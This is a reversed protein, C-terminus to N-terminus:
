RQLGLTLGGMIEGTDTRVQKVTAHRKAGPLQGRIGITELIMANPGLEYPWNLPIPSPSRFSVGPPRDDKLMITISRDPDPNRVYFRFESRTSDVVIVNHVSTNNDNPTNADVRGSMEAHSSRPDEACQAMALLCYDDPQGLSPNPPIFDFDVIAAAGGIEAVGPSGPSRVRVTKTGLTTWQDSPFPPMVTGTFCWYLEVDVSLAAIVGRNHVRVFVRNEGGAAPREDTLEEFKSLSLGKPRPVHILPPADVKVDVSEWYPTFVRRNEFLTSSPQETNGWDYVNDRMFVDVGQAAVRVAEFANVRGYGHTAALSFGNVLDYEASLPEIKDATNQLLYQVQERTLNPNVSLILGAVGATTACAASTGSFCSTYYSGAESEVCSDDHQDDDDAYTTVISRTGTGRATPALVEMCDGFGAKSSQDQDTSGSVAIVHELSSIDSSNDVKDNTMAFVIVCGRNPDPGYTPRGEEAAEQIAKKVDVPAIIGRAYGWSCCIVDAGMTQAYNFALHQEYNTLNCRLLMLECHPCSGKVDFAGNAGVCGAVATGHWRPPNDTRGFHNTGEGNWLNGKLDRHEHHVPTDIVAIVVGNGEAITWAEQADVDADNNENNLHWQPPLALARFEPVIAFNAVAYQTRNDEHYINAVQLADFDANPDLDLLHQNERYPNTKFTTVADDGEILENIDIPDKDDLQVIVQHTLIMPSRAGPPTVVLGIEALPSDDLVQRAAGAFKAVEPRSTDYPLALRVIRGREDFEVVQLGLTAAFTIAEDRTVGPRTVAGLAGNFNLDIAVLQSEDVALGTQYSDEVINAASEKAKILKGESVDTVTVPDRYVQMDDILGEWYLEGGETSGRGVYFAGLSPEVGDDGVDVKKRTWQDHVYFEVQQEAMNWVIGVEHWDGDEEIWSESSVLTGAPLETMLEGSDSIMLWNVGNQQSAIVGGSFSTYRKIWCFVSLSGDGPSRVFPAEVFAGVGDFELASGDHGDVWSPEQIVGEHLGVLDLASFGFGENYSWWAALRPYDASRETETTTFTWITGEISSGDEQIEDVRWEYTTGVELQRDLPIFYFEHLWVESNLKEFDEGLETNRLYVNHSKAGDGATWQLLPLNVDVAGNAPDPYLTTLPEVHFDWVVGENSTGGSTVWDVRWYYTAGPTGGDIELYTSSVDEAVLNAATFDKNTGLYVDYLVESGESPWLLVLPMETITGNDPLRLFPFPVVPLIPQPFRPQPIVVIGPDFPDGGGPFVGGSSLLAGTLLLILSMRMAAFVLKVKPKAKM